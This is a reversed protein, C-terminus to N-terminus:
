TGEARLDEFGLWGERPVAPTRCLCGSKGALSPAPTPSAHSREWFGPGPRWRGRCPALRAQQASGACGLGARGRPPPSWAQDGDCPAQPATGRRSATGRGSGLSVSTGQRTRMDRAGTLAVQACLVRGQFQTCSQSLCCPHPASSVCQTRQGGAVAADDADRLGATHGGYGHRLAHGLLHVQRLPSPEAQLTRPAPRPTRQGRAPDATGSSRPPVAPAGTGASPVPHSRWKRM